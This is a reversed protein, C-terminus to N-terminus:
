KNFYHKLLEKYGCVPCIIWTIHDILQKYVQKSGCKKCYM